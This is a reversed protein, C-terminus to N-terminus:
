ELSIIRVQIGVYGLDTDDNDMPLPFSKKNHRFSLLQKESDLKFTSQLLKKLQWVTM